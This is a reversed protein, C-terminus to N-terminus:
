EAPFKRYFRANLLSFPIRSNALTINYCDKQWSVSIRLKKRSIRYVLARTAFSKLYIFYLYKLKFTNKNWLIFLGKSTFCVSYKVIKNTVFDLWRINFCVNVKILDNKLKFSSCSTKHWDFLIIFVSRDTQQELKFFFYHTANKCSQSFLMLFEWSLCSIVYPSFSLNANMLYDCKLLNWHWLMRKVRDSQTIKLLDLGNHCFM